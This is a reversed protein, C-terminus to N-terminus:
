FKILASKYKKIKIINKSFKLIESLHIYNVYAIVSKNKKLIKINNKLFRNMIKEDFPNFMFIFYSKKNDLILNKADGKFVNIKNSNKSCNKLNRKSNEVYRDVFDFGTYSLFDFKKFAYILLKLIINLCFPNIKKEKITKIINKNGLNNTKGTNKGIQGTLNIICFLKKNIHKKLNKNNLINLNNKKPSIILFYKELKKKLYKGLYGCGGILLIKKM